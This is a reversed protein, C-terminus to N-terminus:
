RVVAMKGIAESTQSGDLTSVIVKYLYVGNALRNGDDDLGDWPIKVFTDTEGYSLITKILRGSLTFVKIKVNVPEGAGGVATRQFTFATSSSFPDPYNYINMLSLQQSSEIDFTARAESSNNFVDFASVTVSHEGPALSM